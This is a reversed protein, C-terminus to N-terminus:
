AARRLATSSGGTGFDFREVLSGLSESENSLSRAAATSEEVLAANQQTSRDMDAVAVDVQTITTSQQRAEMAIETIMDSLAQTSEVIQSLTTQANGILRAGNSVERGSAQIMGTIEKAADSSRQALARVENAVVAFGKGAEGARAAEVGANLALLNTQFAIGEILEVIEGMKQSSALIQEMAAVAQAMVDGSGSAHQRAELALGNAQDATAASSAASQTLQRVAAASEELSAAQRETRLALDQAASAIERSGNRVSQAATTVQRMLDAMGAMADNFDSRLREYEGPFTQDITATLCGDKLAALGQGLAGVVQQQVAMQRESEERSRQAVSTKIAALARGIDGIEDTQDEGPIARDLNGSAMDMMAGTLGALPAMIRNSFLLLVGIAVVIVLGILITALATYRDILDKGLAGSEEALKANYAIADELATGLAAGVPNLTVTFQRRAEANQDFPLDRIAAAKAKWDQLVRSLTAFKQRETEDSIMSNYSALNADIEDLRQKLTQDYGQQEAQDFALLHKAMLFRADGLKGRVLALKQLSPVTTQTAHTLSSGLSNSASLAM